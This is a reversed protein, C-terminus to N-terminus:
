GDKRRWLDIILPSFGAYLSVVVCIVLVDIM